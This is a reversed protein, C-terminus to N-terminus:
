ICLICIMIKKIKVVIIFGYLQIFIEQVISSFMIIRKIVRGEVGILVERIFYYFDIFKLLFICYIIYFVYIGYDFRFFLFILELQLIVNWIIELNYLLFIKYINIGIYNNCIKNLLDFCKIYSLFISRIIFFCNKLM